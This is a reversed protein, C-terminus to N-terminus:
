SQSKAYEELEKIFKGLPDRDGRYVRNFRKLLDDVEEKNNLGSSEILQIARELDRELAENRRNRIRFVEYLIDDTTWGYTNMGEALNVIDGTEKDRDLAVIASSGEELDSLLFHSHTSIVFHCTHFRQYIRNIWDIYRIQWNPHSSTEPEDILVLSHQEIRSLINIFQCLMATEGSSSNEFLFEEETRANIKKHIRIKPYSLVDLSTLLKIAQWDEKFTKGNIDYVLHSRRGLLQNEKVRKMYEVMLTINEPNQRIQKFKNHSWPQDKRKMGAAKFAEEWNDFIQVFHEETIPDAFYVNKYRVSYEIEMKRELDLCELLDFLKDKFYSDHTLCEAIADVTKKVITKTGTSNPLNENRAGLYWYFNDPQKQTKFRDAITISSALVACPLDCVHLGNPHGDVWCSIKEKANGDMKVLGTQDPLNSIKYNRGNEYYQIAFRFGPSEVKSNDYNKLQHLYRFIDAVAALVFSKGVGNAGIIVTSYPKESITISEEFQTNFFEISCKKGKPALVTHNQIELHLLRFGNKKRDLTYTLWGDM